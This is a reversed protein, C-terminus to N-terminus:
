PLPDFARSRVTNERKEEPCPVTEPDIGTSYETADGGDVDYPPVAISLSPVYGTMYRICAIRPSLLALWFFFIPFIPFVPDVFSM